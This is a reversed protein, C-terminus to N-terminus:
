LFTALLGALTHEGKLSNFIKVFIICGDKSRMNYGNSYDKSIKLFALNIFVNIRFYLFVIYTLNSIFYMSVCLVNSKSHLFCWFKNLM